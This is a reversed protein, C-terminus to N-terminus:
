RHVRWVKLVYVRRDPEEVRFHVALPRSVLIRMRGPRSEGQLQPDNRLAADISDAATAVANRDPGATWIRALTAEATPKWLVTYIM